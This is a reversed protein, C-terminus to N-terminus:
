SYQRRSLNDKGRRWPKGAGPRVGAQAFAKRLLGDLALPGAALFARLLQPMRRLDQILSQGEEGVVLAGRRMVFWNFLTSLMTFVVSAIVSTMIRPTGRLWHMTLEIAHSAAPLVVVVTLAATWAPEVQRFAQTIAGYFGATVARYSFEALMAGTAAAWGASLNACFFLLARTTSSFVAAKWNWREMLVGPNRILELLVSQVTSMWFM